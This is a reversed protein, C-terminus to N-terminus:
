NKYRGARADILEHEHPVAFKYTIHVSDLFLIAEPTNLQEDMKIQKVSHDPISINQWSLLSSM